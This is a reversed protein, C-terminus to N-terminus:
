TYQIIVIGQTGAGGSPDTGAGSCSTPTVPYSSCGYTYAPGGGGGSGYGTASYGALCFTSAYGDDGMYCYAGNDTGDQYCEFGGMGGGGLPTNMCTTYFSWQGSQPVCLQCTTVAGDGGAGYYVTSGTISSAIGNGGEESTAAGGAGGGGGAATGGSSSCSPSYGANGYGTAGGSNGQTTSGATGACTGGGSGGSLGVTAGGGGGGNAVATDFSSAGGNSGSNGSSGGSGGTGVNVIYANGPTVPRNTQMAVGGGGGGGGAYISASSDGGGGGGVVLINVSTVGVPATWTWSGPPSSYTFTDLTYVGNTTETCTLGGGSTCASILQFSATEMINGNMTLIYPNTTGTYSGSGTGTWGAFAYGGTPTAKITVSAGVLYNGSSPSVTGGAGASMTLSYSPAFSATIATAATVTVVETSASPICTSGSCSWSLLTYTPNPSATVTLSTGYSYSASCPTSASNSTYACSVSGGSGATASFSYQTLAFAATEVINSGMTITNTASTGSYCGTGTCTWGSFSYGTSPTATIAVLSGSLYSGGSPAATGGTLANVSLSFLVSNAPAQSCATSYPSYSGTAMATLPNQGSTVTVNSSLWGSFAYGSPSIAFVPYNAGALFIVNAGSPYKVGGVVINGTGTSTLLQVSYLVSSSTTATVTSTGSTAYSQAGAKNCSPCIQYSLTFTPSTQSGVPPAFTSSPVTVDCTVTAGSPASQPLCSGLYPAGSSSPPSLAISNQPFYLTAGVNNQILVIFTSSTPSVLLASQYCALTETVYCSSPAYTTPGTSPAFVILYMSALFLTLILFAWFYTSLFELASQAKV